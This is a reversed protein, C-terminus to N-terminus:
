HSDRETSREHVVTPTPQAPDTSEEVRRTEEQHVRGRRAHVILAGGALMLILGVTQLDIGPLEKRIAFAFIAGIVLLAVGSGM